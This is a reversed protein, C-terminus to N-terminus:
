TLTKNIKLMDCLEKIGENFQNLSINLKKLYKNYNMGFFMESFRGIKCDIM